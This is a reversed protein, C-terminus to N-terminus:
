QTHREECSSLDTLYKNLVPVGIDDLQDEILAKRAYVLVVLIQVTIVPGMKGLIDKSLLIKNRWSGLWRFLQFKTEM